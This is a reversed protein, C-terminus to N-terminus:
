FSIEFDGPNVKQKKLWKNAKKVVLKWESSRSGQTQTLWAIVVVTAWIADAVPTPPTGAFNILAFVDL